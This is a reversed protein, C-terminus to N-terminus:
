SRRFAEPSMGTERHFIRSFYGSDSFGVSSAIETITQRSERLLHKAQNIRYRHLYMIPTTGLEQRFCFTLHDETIGIHRAVDRRSVSEAFKQHIYGMALRVLRRSEESLKRKHELAASIHYVTEEISFLGKGLVAAVGENLRSMDTETLVTGTVVIVPISRTSEMSRMAELVQFGDMEPMQLDLLILDVIERHLIELAEKGNRAKLVRNSSAHSQVIRANMELTNPEDDVVLITRAPRITDTMLWHQDLARTLESIEIPKTLYDLELSAGDLQSSSFFLVPIEAMAPSSKIEKLANWGVASDTSVDLIIAQPHKEAIQSHWDLEWKMPVLLVEFGRRQLHEYLRESTSPDSTLIVVNQEASSPREPHLPQELPPQVTPLTFTFTSGAGEEGSSQVAIIGGHIEVLRKSIALGLGLGGYGRAVSRESQWFEDFIARQDDPSIGLGTDRVMVTVFNINDEIRLSVGGRTTFKIANNILNLVIQRLRTQDGWVWPGTEPLVAEWALGKDAALQSGSEAVIRLAQALDITENNLRLHGADSTALDIVDGILGGLHQSYAHIRDMDKRVAEPLSSDSEESERLLMGSLGVILNLPTRLEHSITSLFRSKMRNAEEALRRGETAQRYLRATNLAGGLQQVISGYLDFHAADFGMFGIQGSQDVLPILTLIFQHGTGLLGDPPFERSRFRVLKEDLSITNRITSWAVPDDGEAEYIGLFATHIDMDPLNAALIEYIHLEDLATLLRATLLSLRSSTWREDMVYHQHQHQMAASITLRAESLLSRSLLASTPTHGSTESFEDSMLSIADQWIHTDDDGFATRQLADALAQQFEARDGAQVSTRFTDVLRQCLALGEDETLSRAQNMITAAITRALSSPQDEGQLTQGASGTDAEFPVYKGVRCGCSERIVLHTDVKVLEPLQAKGEIHGLLLDVAHYGINFLPVHISSLGPEQVAGELRNDFGIVAVDEPIRRGANQLAQMAGLASEDNSAVVATFTVGSDLIQQMALYGGDYVHRGYGLLRPDQELGYIECGSQYARLRDGSDGRLDEVTGAIFGIQRHGHESLHRIAQLIGGANDVSITPGTEGSGVFLIPHGAAILGQIYESRAQSHLPVAVILGDTNWPGIPVFDHDASLVPWAPRLPDTPNASPGMGCGLLVNCGRNQAARTIGRFIPALYSLNTATRYFQWGALVGITPRINAHGTKM